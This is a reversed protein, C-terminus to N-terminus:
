RHSCAFAGFRRQAEVTYVEHAEEPTAFSGLYTNVGGSKIQAVFRGRVNRYVGKPWDGRARSNRVNESLTAARLNDIRNNRRDGDIHDVTVECDDGYVLRWCIRHVLSRRENVEVYLYGDTGVWGAERGAYRVNWNRLKDPRHKWFLRGTHPEFLFCTRLYDIDDLHMTEPPNLPKLSNPITL